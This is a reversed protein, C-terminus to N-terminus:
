LIVIGVCKVKDDAVPKISFAFARFKKKSILSHLGEIFKWYSDITMKFKVEIYRMREKRFLDKIIRTAIKMAEKLERLYSIM